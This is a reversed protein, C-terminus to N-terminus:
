IGSSPDFVDVTGTTQVFEPNKKVSDLHNGTGVPSWPRFRNIDSHGPSLVVFLEGRGLFEWYLFGSSFNEGRNKPILVADEENIIKWLVLNDVRLIILKQQHLRLVNQLFVGWLFSCSVPCKCRLLVQGVQAELIKIVCGIRWTQDRRVVM